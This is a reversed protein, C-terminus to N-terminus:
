SIAPLLGHYRFAVSRFAVNRLNEAVFLAQVFARQHVVGTGEEVRGLVEPMRVVVESVHEVDQPEAVLGAPVVRGLQLQSWSLLSVEQDSGEEMVEVM